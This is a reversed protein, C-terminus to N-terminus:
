AAELAVAASRYLNCAKEYDKEDRLADGWCRYTIALEYNDGSAELLNIAKKFNARVKASDGLDAYCLALERHSIALSSPQGDALKSSRQALFIARETNGLLREVTGLQRLARGQNVTDETREFIEFARELDTRADELREQKKMLFAHALHTMGLESQFDLESYIREAQRFSKAAADFDGREMFVRAINIHMSGVKDPDAVQSQLSLAEQASAGAQRALGAQFYAAILSIHIRLLAAPDSLGQRELHSLFSELIYTAYPVDGLVRICRSRGSVAEAKNSTHSDPISAQLSEYLEAAEEFGGSREICFAEGLAAREALEDLGYDRARRLVRRLSKIAEDSRGAFLMRRADTIDKELAAEADPPRGTALEEYTMRLRKAFYKLVQESPERKGAEIVSVYAASYDPAALEGQTLGAAIRADKLRKGVSM